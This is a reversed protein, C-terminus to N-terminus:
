DLEKQADLTYEDGKVEKKSQKVIMFYIALVVGITSIGMILIIVVGWIFLEM